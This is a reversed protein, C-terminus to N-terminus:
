TSTASICCQSHCVLACRCESLPVNRKARVRRNRCSASRRRAGELDDSLRPRALRLRHGCLRLAPRGSRLDGGVVSFLEAPENSTVVITPGGVLRPVRVIRKPDILKGDLYADEVVSLGRPLLVRGVKAAEAEALKERAPAVYAGLGVKAAGVDVADQVVGIAAGGVDGAIGSTQDTVCGACLALALLIAPGTKKVSM